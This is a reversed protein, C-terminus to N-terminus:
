TSAEALTLAFQACKTSLSVLRKKIQIETKCKKISLWYNQRGLYPSRVSKLVMKNMLFRIYKEFMVTLLNLITFIKQDTM